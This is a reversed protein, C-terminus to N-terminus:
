IQTPFCLVIDTWWRQAYSIYWIVSTALCLSAICSANQGHCFGNFFITLCYVWTVSTVFIKSSVAIQECTSQSWFIQASITWHLNHCKGTTRVRNQCPNKLKNSSGWQEVSVIYYLLFQARRLWHLKGFGLVFGMFALSLAHDTLPIQCVYSTM